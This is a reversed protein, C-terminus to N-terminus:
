GEVEALAEAAVYEGSASRYVVPIAGRRTIAAIQKDLPHAAKPLRLTRTAHETRELKGASVLVLIHHRVTSTSMGFAAGIERYSPSLGHKNLHHIVYLLVAKTRWHLKM